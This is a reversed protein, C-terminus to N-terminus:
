KLVNPNAFKGYYKRSAINWIIAAELETHFSGLTKEKCNAQIRAKWRRVNKKVYSVGKYKSSGGKMVVRNRANEANTCLRLNSKQNNLGNHDIHDVMMGKPANMIVRHILQMLEKEGARYTRRVYWSTHMYTAGWKYKNLMNFDEDDVLAVQGQTLKITKM